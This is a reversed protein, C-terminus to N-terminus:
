QTLREYNNALIVRISVAAAARVGGGDVVPAFIGRFASTVTMEARLLLM